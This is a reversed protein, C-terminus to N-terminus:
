PIRIDRNESARRREEETLDVPNVPTVLSWHSGVPCRQFRWPGLRLSKLSAAPIWLTTFLHDDKCRVVVNGGLGYGRARLFALDGLVTSAAIILARRRRKQRHRPRISM